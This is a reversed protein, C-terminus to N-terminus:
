EGKQLHVFNARSCHMCTLKFRDIDRTMANWYFRHGVEERLFTRGLHATMGHLQGSIDGHIMKMVTIRRKPNLIVEAWVAPVCFLKIVHWV